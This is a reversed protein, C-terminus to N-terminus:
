AACVQPSCHERGVTARAYLYNNRAAESLADLDVQGKDDCPFALACGPRFLCSFRVEFRPRAAGAAPAQALGTTSHASM